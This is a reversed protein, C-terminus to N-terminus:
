IYLYLHNSITVYFPIIRVDTIKYIQAGYMVGVVQAEKVCCLYNQGVINLIGLVGFIPGETIRMRETQFVEAQDLPQYKVEFM